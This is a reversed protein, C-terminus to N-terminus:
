VTLFKTWKRERVEKKFKYIIQWKKIAGWDRCDYSGGRNDGMVWCCGKPITLDYSKGNRRQPLIYPEDLWEGNVAVSGQRTITLRDGGVAIIRKCYLKRWEGLWVGVIDGRKCSHFVQRCRRFLQVRYFKGDQLTPNMSDGHLKVYKPRALYLIM